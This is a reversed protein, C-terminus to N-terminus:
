TLKPCVSLCDISHRRSSLPVVCEGQIATSWSGSLYLMFAAICFKTFEQMLVITSGILAPPAFRAILTPQVAVQLALLGMYLLAKGNLPPAKSTQAAM